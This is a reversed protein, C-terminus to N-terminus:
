RNIQNKKETIVNDIKMVALAFMYGLLAGIIAGGLMDSPYHLGLYPRSLAVLFATIYLVWKYQPYITAFFTAAAFNNVAHSSPFSFTGSCGIVARIDPLVNCPRIREFMNKLLNSSFQDSAIILLIMFGAAIKGKRGGKFMLILWLILYTLYWNKVDTIFVFFKDIIPNAITSNLFYLITVDIQYLVDIM